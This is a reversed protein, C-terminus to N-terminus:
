QVLEEKQVWSLIFEMFYLYTYSRALFFLFHKSMFHFETM